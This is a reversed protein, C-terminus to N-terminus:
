CLGHFEWREQYIDDFHHNEMAINTKKSPIDKLFVAKYELIM